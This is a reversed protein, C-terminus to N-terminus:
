RSEPLRSYLTLKRVLLTSKPRFVSKRCLKLLPIQLHPIWIRYWITLLICKMKESVFCKQASINIKSLTRGLSETTLFEFGTDTPWFLATPIRLQFASKFYIYRKSLAQRFTPQITSNKSFDICCEFQKDGFVKRWVKDFIFTKAWLDKRLSFIPQM